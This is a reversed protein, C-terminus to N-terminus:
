QCQNRRREFALTARSSSLSELAVVRGCTLGGPHENHVVQDELLM